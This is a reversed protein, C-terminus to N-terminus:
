NRLVVASLWSKWDTVALCLAVHHAIGAAMSSLRALLGEEAAPALEKWSPGDGIHLCAPMTVDMLVHIQAAKLPRPVASGSAQM